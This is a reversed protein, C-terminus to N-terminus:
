FEFSFGVTLRYDDSKPQDGADDREPEEIRDWYFGVDLNIPDWVEFSLIASTSHATRGIDTVLLQLGYHADFDVDRPLDLALDATALVAADTSTTGGSNATHQGAAGITFRLEALPNDIPEYGVGAGATYRQDINQFQDTYFEFSPIRVFFRNTVLLDLQTSARHNNTTKEDDVRGIAGNYRNEWRTFTADRRILGNAGFDQQDTNGARAALNAGLKVSWHQLEFDETYTVSVIERQPIEVVSGDAQRVRLVKDRLDGTGVYIRKGDRRFVRPHAFRLDLVDEWDFKVEDFEDSDFTLTNSQVVIVEGKLWEGSDIRMWDWTSPGPEDPTWEPSKAVADSKAPAESTAEAPAPVEAPAPTTGPDAAGLGACVLAFLSTALAARLRSGRSPAPGRVPHV